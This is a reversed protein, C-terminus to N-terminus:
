IAPSSYRFKAHTINARGTNTVVLGGWTQNLPHVENSTLTIPNALTGNLNLTGEVILRAFEHAYFNTGPDVTVTAGPAIHTVATLLVPNNNPTLRLDKKIIPPLITGDAHRPTHKNPKPEFEPIALRNYWVKSDVQEAWIAIPLLILATVLLTTSLHKTNTM